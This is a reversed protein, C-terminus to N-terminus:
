RKTSSESKYEQDNVREESTMMQQKYIIPQIKFKNRDEM